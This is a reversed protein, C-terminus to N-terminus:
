GVQRFTTTVNSAVFDHESYFRPGAGTEEQGRPASKEIKDDRPKVVPHCSALIRLYFFLLVAGLEGRHLPAACRRPPGLFGLFSYNGTIGRDM